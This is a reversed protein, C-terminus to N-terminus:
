SRREVRGGPYRREIMRAGRADPISDPSMIADGAIIGAEALALCAFQSCYYSGPLRVLNLTLVGTLNYWKGKRARCWDLIRHRQAQTPEGVRWVELVRAADVPFEGTKPFTAEFQHGPKDSLVAAHSYQELGRGLGALIEGAVVLRSSWASRGDAPYLVVDGPQTM